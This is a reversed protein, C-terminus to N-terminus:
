ASVVRGAGTQDGLVVVKIAAWQTDLDADLQGSGYDIQCSGPMLQHDVQLHQLLEGAPEQAQIHEYDAAAVRVQVLKGLRYEEIAQAALDAVLPRAVQHQGILKAAVALALRAVVPEMDPIIQEHRERVAAVLDALHQQEKQIAKRLVDEKQQLQRVQEEKAVRLAAEAEKRAIAIGQQRAEDQLAALETAFQERLSDLLPRAEHGPVVPAPASAALGPLRRANSGVVPQRLISDGRLDPGSM